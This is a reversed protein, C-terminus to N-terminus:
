NRKQAIFLKRTLQEFNYFEKSKIIFTEIAKDVGVYGSFADDFCIFGGPKLFKKVNQIDIAVQNYGHDGDIYILKCSSAVLDRTSLTSSDGHIIKVKESQGNIALNKRFIELLSNCERYTPRIANQFPEDWVKAEQCGLVYKGNVLTKFSWSKDENQYWDSFEPFADVCFLKENLNENLAKALVTSSKGCYSGIEIVHGTLNSKRTLLYLAFLQEQPAWGDIGQVM